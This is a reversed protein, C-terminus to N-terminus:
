VKSETMVTLIFIVSVVINDNHDSDYSDSMITIVIEIMAINSIKNGNNNSVDTGMVSVTVVMARRVSVTMGTMVMKGAATILRATVM